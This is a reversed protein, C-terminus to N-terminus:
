VRAFSACQPPMRLRGERSLGRFAGCFDEFTKVGIKLSEEIAGDVAEGVIATSFAPLYEQLQLVVSPIFESHKDCVDLIGSSPAENYPIAEYTPLNRQKTWNMLDWPRKNKTAITEIREDFFQRKAAKTARRLAGYDAPSRSQRYQRMATACDANWWAKSRTNVKVTKANSNWADNCARALGAILDELADRTDINSIDMSKIYTLLAQLFSSEEESGKPMALRESAVETARIPLTVCLPAHDSAIWDTRVEHTLGVLRDQPLFMLDIVSPVLGRAHPFHTPTRVPQVSVDVGLDSAADILSTAVHNNGEHRPDWVSSHCTFDGAMCQLQPLREVNDCLWNIATSNQDSYVNIYHLPTNDEGWLTLVLIDRHDALDTRFAPRMAALAPLHGDLRSSNTSRGSGGRGPQYSLRHATHLEM